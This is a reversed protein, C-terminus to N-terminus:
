KLASLYFGSFMVIKESPRFSSRIIAVLFLNCHLEGGRLCCNLTDNCHLVGDLKCCTAEGLCTKTLDELKSVGTLLSFLKFPM